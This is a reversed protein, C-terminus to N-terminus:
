RKVQCTVNTEFLQRGSVADILRVVGADTVIVLRKWQNDFFSWDV